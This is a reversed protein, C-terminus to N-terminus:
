TFSQAIGTCPRCFARELKLKLCTFAALWREMHNSKQFSLRCRVEKKLWSSEIRKFSSGRYHRMNEFIDSILLEPKPFFTTSKMQLSPAARM